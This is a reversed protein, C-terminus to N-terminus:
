PLSARLLVNEGDDAIYLQDGPGLALAAPNGLTATQIGSQLGSGPAHIFTSVTGGPTMRRIGTNGLDAIYLSGDSAIVLDGPSSFRAQTGVGDSAGAQGASGALTSVVGQPSIGRLTHNGADSVYLTGASDLALHSPRLFRAAAGEGDDSGPQGASGAVLSFEGQSSIRCVIHQRSDTFYVTGAADSVIDGIFATSSKCGSADLGDVGYLQVLKSVVAEPTIKRIAQDFDVVLLNGAADFTMNTPIGFEAAPGVGDTDSRSLRPMGAFTSVIGEPSLKRITGNGGDAVYVNGRADVAVGTPTNFRAQAGPGDTSGISGRGGLTAVRGDPAVTRLGLVRERVVLRGTRPDAALAVPQYFRAQTGSGDLSDVLGPKGALTSTVGAPSIKRITSGDAVYVSGAADLSLDRIDAFVAQDGAGDRSESPSPPRVSGALVSPTGDPAIKLIRQTLFDSVYVSGTADVALGRSSFSEGVLSGARGVVLTTVLGEPSIRRVASNGGDNVYVSGAADVALEGVSQFRATTSAGDDFGTSGEMGALVSLVGTTSLKRVVANAGDGIYLNGAADVALGHVEIFKGGGLDCSGNPNLSAVMTFVGDPSMRHLKCSGDAGYLNGQADMTLPSQLRPITSRPLSSFPLGAVVTLTSDPAPGSSGGGGGCASLGALALAFGPWWQLSGRRAARQLLRM